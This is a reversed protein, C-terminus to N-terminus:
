ASNRASPAPPGAASPPRREGGNAVQTGVAQLAPTGITAFGGPIVRLRLKGIDRYQPGALVLEAVAHLSRRTTALVAQGM